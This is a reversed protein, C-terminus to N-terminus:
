WLIASFIHPPSLVGPKKYFILLGSPNGWSQRIASSLALSRIYSYNTM